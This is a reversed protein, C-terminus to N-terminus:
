DPRLRSDSRPLKTKLKEPLDNLKIAFNTFQYQWDYKDPMPKAKWLSTWEKEETKRYLLEESWKGKFQAVHNKEGEKMYLKGNVEHKGSNGWGAASLELKLVMGNTCNKVFMPGVHEIYMTGFILNNVTTVPRSIIYHENTSKLHVHQYGIPIAQLVGTWSIGMTTNTDMHYKYHTSEGICASIPPHHSVQEAFYTYEKTKM